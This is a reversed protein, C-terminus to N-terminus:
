VTLLLSFSRNQNLQNEKGWKGDGVLLILKQNSNLNIFRPLLCNSFWRPQSFRKGLPFSGKPIQLIHLRLLFQWCNHVRKFHTCIDKENWQLKKRLGTQSSWCLIDSLTGQGLIMDQPQGTETGAPESWKSYQLQLTVCAKYEWRLWDKRWHLCNNQCSHELCALVPTQLRTYHLLLLVIIIIIMRLPIICNLPLLNGRTSAEVCVM